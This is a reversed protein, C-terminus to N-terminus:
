NLTIHPTLRTQALYEAFLTLLVIYLITLISPTATLEQFYLHIFPYLITLEVVVITFIIFILSIGVYGYWAISMEGVRHYLFCIAHYVTNVFLLSAFLLSMFGALTDERTTLWSLLVTLILVTEMSLTILSWLRQSGIPYYYYYMYGETRHHLLLRYKPRNSGISYSRTHNQAMQPSHTNRVVEATPHYHSGRQRNRMEQGARRSLQIRNAYENYSTAGSLISSSQTASTPPQLPPTVGQLRTYEKSMYSEESQTLGMFHFIWFSTPGYGKQMMVHLVIGSWLLVLFGYISVQTYVDFLLFPSIASRTNPAWITILAFVTVYAVSAVKYPRMSWEIRWEGDPTGKWWVMILLFTILIFGDYGEYSKEVTWNVVRVTNEVWDVIVFFSRWAPRGIFMVGPVPSIDMLLENHGLDTPAIIDEKRIYSTISSRPSSSTLNIFEMRFDKWEDIGNEFVNLGATYADYVSPPVLTRSTEFSFDVIVIEKTPGVLAQTLCMGDFGITCEIHNKLQNGQELKGFKDADQIVDATGGVTMAGSGFTAQKWVLWIPSSPGVGLLGDIPPGDPNSGEIKGYVRASDHEFPLRMKKGGLIIEDTMTGSHYTISKGETQASITYVKDGSYDLALRFTRQPTGVKVEAVHISHGRTKGELRSPIVEQLWGGEAIQPFHLLLVAVLIAYFQGMWQM